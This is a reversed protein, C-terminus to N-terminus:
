STMLADLLDDAGHRIPDRCVMGLREGFEEVAKWAQQEDLRATNLALARVKPASSSGAPRAIAALSECLAVLEELEPLPIEPLRDITSQQARHVMMLATPQSGRLLPLTATSGPHCLSGQGEVLLLGKPPLTEAASLVAAEVAGSAFDVRVADLPVGQGSILIGAQGTGVFASPVGARAAAEHVALCASMKGVAMDTGVALIRQCSLTAARAQGVGLGAPERRLDWIWRGPQLAARLEPDENLYTHLGSALSLGAKLAALVDARMADPLVGGSPALGIVAVAPGHVLAEALNRVVPVQRAIGTVLDLRQGAHDPDIVAVIPGQRHRLMALGTKGTLSALGGHQMLVLPM